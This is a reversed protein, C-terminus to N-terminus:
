VVIGYSITQEKRLYVGVSYDHYAKRPKGAQLEFIQLDSAIITTNRSNPLQSEGVKILLTSHPEKKGNGFIDIGDDMYVMIPLYPTSCLRVEKTSRDGDHLYFM